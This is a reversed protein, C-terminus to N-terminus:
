SADLLNSTIRFIIDQRRLEFYKLYQTIDYNRNYM